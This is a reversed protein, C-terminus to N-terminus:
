KENPASIASQNVCARFRGTQADNRIATSADPRTAANTSENSSVLSRRARAGSSADSM